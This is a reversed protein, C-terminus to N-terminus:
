LIFYGIILILHKCSLFDKTSCSHVTEVACKEYMFSQFSDSLHDVKLCWYKELFLNM